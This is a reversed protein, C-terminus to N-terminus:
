LDNDILCSYHWAGFLCDEKTLCEKPPRLVFNKSANEKERFLTLITHLKGTLFPPGNPFRRQRARV